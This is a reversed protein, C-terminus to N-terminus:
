SKKARRRALMNVYAQYRQQDNQISPYYENAMAKIEKTLKVEGGSSAPRSAGAASSTANGTYRARQQQTPAGRGGIKFRSRSLEIAREFTERSDPHGEARMMQYQGQAYLRADPRSMVDSHQAQIMAVELDEPTQRLHATRQNIRYDIKREEIAQGERRLEEQVFSPLNHGHERLAGNWKAYWKQRDREIAEPSDEPEPEPEQRLQFQSMAHDARARADAAERRTEELQRQLEAYQNARARRKEKRTQHQQPSDDALGASDPEDDDVDPALVEVDDDAPQLGAKAVREAAANNAATENDEEIPM